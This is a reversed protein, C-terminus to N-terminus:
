SKITGYHFQFEYIAVVMQSAEISKITGYHFQFWGYDGFSNCWYNSKITGYHFQFKFLSQIVIVTMGAKLRVM